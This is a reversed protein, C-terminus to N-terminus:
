GGNPLEAMTTARAGLEQQIQTIRKAAEIRLRVAANAIAAEGLRQVQPVRRDIAAILDTLQALTDALVARDDKAAPTV